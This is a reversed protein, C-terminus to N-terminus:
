RNGGFGPKPEGASDPATAGSPLASGARTTPLMSRDFPSHPLAVGGSMTSANSSMPGRRAALPSAPAPAPAPTAMKAFEDGLIIPLGSQGGIIVVKANPSEALKLTADIGKWSLYQPTISNNVISQFDKVGQAEIRKREAEQREQSLISVYQRDRQAQIMKLEISAQVDPPLRVGRILLDHVQVLSEEADTGDDVLALRRRLSELIEQQAEIRKQTFLEEPTFKSMRERTSAGVQPGILREIYQPGVFRHLAAIRQANPRFRVLVDVEIRLGDLALIDYHDAYNSLRLDYLTVVDWPFYLNLGEHARHRLDTGGFFRSWLVATHGSPVSIFTRPAALVLAFAAVLFTTTAGLYHRRWWLRLAKRM